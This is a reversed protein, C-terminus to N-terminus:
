HTPHLQRSNLIISISFQAIVLTKRLLIGKTRSIFKGKLSSIPQFGSLFFAPYIGSLLGILVAILLLSEVYNIHEFINTSIIKGSLQNFLPLLLVSLFIALLFAILCLLVADILFQFVLQRKSAGLVKRVGIEKARHLSFATTLNIFNFCHLKM